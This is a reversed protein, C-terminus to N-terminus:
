DTLVAHAAGTKARRVARARWATDRNGEDGVGGSAKRATNFRHNGKARSQFTWDSINDYVHRQSEREGKRM